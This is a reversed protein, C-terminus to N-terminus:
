TYQPDAACTFGKTDYENTSANWMRGPSNQPQRDKQKYFILSPLRIAYDDIGGLRFDLFTQALLGRKTRDLIEM